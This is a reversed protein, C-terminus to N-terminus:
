MKMVAKSYSLLWVVVVREDKIAPKARRGKNREM